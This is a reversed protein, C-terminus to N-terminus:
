RWRFPLEVVAGSGQGAGGRRGRRTSEVVLRLSGAVPLSARCGRARHAQALTITSAITSAPQPTPRGHGSTGAACPVRFTSRSPSESSAWVAAVMPGASPEVAQLGLHDVAGRGAGPQEIGPDDAPQRGLEVSCRRRCRRRRTGRRSSRTDPRARSRRTSGPNSRRRGAARRRSGPGHSSEPRPPPEASRDRSGPRTRRILREAGRSEVERARVMDHHRVPGILEGVESAMGAAATTRSRRRPVRQCVTRLSPTSKVSSPTTRAAFQTAAPMWCAHSVWGWGGVVTATAM